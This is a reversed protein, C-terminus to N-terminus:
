GALTFRFIAKKVGWPKCKELAAHYFNKHQGISIPFRERCLVYPPTERHPCCHLLLNKFVRSVEKHASVDWRFSIVKRSRNSSFGPNRESSDAFRPFLNTGRFHKRQRHFWERSLFVNSLLPSVGISNPTGFLSLPIKPCHAKFSSTPKWYHCSSMKQVCSALVASSDPWWRGSRFFPPHQRPM